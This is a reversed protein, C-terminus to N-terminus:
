PTPGLAPIGRRQRQLIVAGAVFLAAPPLPIVALYLPLRDRLAESRTREDAGNPGVSCDLSQLFSERPGLAQGEGGQSRVAWLLADRARECNERRQTRVGDNALRAWDHRSTQYAWTGAGLLWVTAIVAFWTLCLKPFPYSSPPVTPPQHLNEM